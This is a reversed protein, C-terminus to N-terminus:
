LYIVKDINCVDAIALWARTSWMAGTYVQWIWIVTYTIYSICSIITMETYTFIVEWWTLIVGCTTQTLFSYTVRCSETKLTIAHVIEISNQTSITLILPQWWQHHYYSSDFISMDHSKFKFHVDECAALLKCACLASNAQCKETNLAWHGTTAAFDIDDPQWLRVVRINPLSDVAKIGQVKSM